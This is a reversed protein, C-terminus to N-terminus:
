NQHTRQCCLIVIREYQRASHCFNWTNFPCVKFSYVKLIFQRLLNYCYCNFISKSGEDIFDLMIDKNESCIICEKPLM